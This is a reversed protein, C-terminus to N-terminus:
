FDYQVTIKATRATMVPTQTGTPTLWAGNPVFALNPLLITDRNLANLLDLSLNARTRGLRMLKGIRFDLQTVRDSRMDDPKLLNVTLSTAANSLPRGLQQQISAWTAPAGAATITWDARLPIGPSSLLVASLQVAVKPITYNGAATFRTDIGPEYHCYPNVPSFQPLESGTSFVGTQEPLVSRVACYDTVRQGTNFGAQVQVGNAMRANITFDVGNYVQTIDGPAAYTRYNDVLTEKAPVVNYLGSITYGGGGPLRPDAPAVISFPTFDAVSVARNDTITFHQLWRRTYAVDISVRPLLERQVSASIIWDSPRNYWGQLINPDYSLTYVNKGFNQDNWAGCLDGGRSRNDQTLGNMLDCDPNDNGNGDIWTRTVSTTIRSSPLLSSYNGNGGVAAELYRGANFKLATKGNGTLDYAFGFRPDIDNYGIVGKSEPFVLATPLFRTPGIQQQPYYSWAHDYRVAGQLTLRGRTWQDQAYFANMRVRTDAEYPRLDQTLQNPIGNNFRYALNYNNTSPRSIIWYFAGIYGAKLNHAGTLYTASANWRNPSMWDTNWNQARYVLGQINGNTPCGNTCQETVPILNRNNGPRERGNWNQQYTGLGAELLLRSTTTSTWRIQQLPSHTYGSVTGTEPAGATPGTIGGIQVPDTFRYAGPDWFMNLKDRKSAQLTLRLTPRVTGPANSNEAPKDFDPVYTWKTIDGANKNYYMGPLSTGSGIYNTNFFFWLRDKVIPGGNSLSADWLFLTKQPSLITVNKFQELLGSYNDAQMWGSMGSGYFHNQFTNGGTKPIMNVIPGGVEAEGLGGAPIMVVEQATELQGYGSVGGGNIAAGTGLGDLQSQGENQRGGRGGFVIMGPSLQVNPNGGGSQVMSPMLLMVAAYGRATPISQILNLDLTQTRKISQVDVIPSEGSVTVTEEVAGVRLDANVTAVFDSPLELADRKFTTFGTLTFTVTYTGPRLDLIRYQGSGDTTASRVKEILAPSAAEVTVGPLVAGSTDRVIGTISSEAYVASPLLVALCAGILAKASTRM